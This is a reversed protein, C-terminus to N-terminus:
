MFTNKVVLVTNQILLMPTSTHVSGEPTLLSLFAEVVRSYIRFVQGERLAHKGSAEARMSRITRDFSRPPTTPTVRGLTATMLETPPCVRGDTRMYTHANGPVLLCIPPTGM